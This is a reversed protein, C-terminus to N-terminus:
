RVLTHVTTQQLQRATMCPFSAVLFPLHASPCFGSVRLYIYWLNKSLCNSKSVETFVTAYESRGIKVRRSVRGSCPLCHFPTNPMMMIMMVFLLARAGNNQGKPTRWRDETRRICSRKADNLRNNRNRNTCICFCILYVFINWIQRQAASPEISCIAHNSVSVYSIVTNHLSLSFHFPFPSPNKILECNAIQQTLEM